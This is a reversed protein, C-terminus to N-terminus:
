LAFDSNTDGQAHPPASPTEDLRPEPAGGASQVIPVITVDGNVNYVRIEPSFAGRARVQFERRTLKPTTAVSINTAKRGREFYGADVLCVGEITGTVKYIGGLAPGSKKVSHLDVRPNSINSGIRVRCGTVGTWPNLPEGLPWGPPRYPEPSREARATPLPCCLLAASFLWGFRKTRLAHFIRNM